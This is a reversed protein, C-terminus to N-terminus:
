PLETHWCRELWSVLERRPATYQQVTSRVLLAAIAGEVEVRLSGDAPCSCPITLEQLRYYISWRDCRSVTVVQASDPPSAPPSSFKLTM